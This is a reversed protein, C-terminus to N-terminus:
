KLMEVALKNISIKYKSILDDITDDGLTKYVHDLFDPISDADKNANKKLRDYEKDGKFAKKMDAKFSEALETDRVVVISEFIEKISRM